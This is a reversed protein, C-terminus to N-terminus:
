MCPLSQIVFGNALCKVFGSPLCKVVRIDHKVKGVISTNGMELSLDAPFTAGDDADAHDSMQLWVKIPMLDDTAAQHLGWDLTHGANIVVGLDATMQDSQMFTELRDSRDFWLHNTTILNLFTPDVCLVNKGKCVTFDMGVAHFVARGGASPLSV